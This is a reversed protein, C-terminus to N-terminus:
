GKYSELNISKENQDIANIEPARDGIKLNSM